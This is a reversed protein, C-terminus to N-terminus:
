FSTVVPPETTRLVAVTVNLKTAGEESKVAASNSEKAASRLSNIVELVTDRNNM